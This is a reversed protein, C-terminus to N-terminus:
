QQLSGEMGLQWALFSYEDVLDDIVKSLPKGAGHGAKKEFRLLVPRGSTTAKQLRACMKRAHLPDVRTDRDATMLLVAPYAQGPAVRHYPSYAYLWKFDEANDACGYEPIWLRALQFRHYRVMDLLPVSCLVARFLEPRQTLVAGVLLGGNSGGSIALKDPSTIRQKILWEAAAIFDDFSNQKNALMGGKHWDEGYEGGGRIGPMAYVGGRELWAVLASGFFPTQPIAFGGYGYLLTPHRGDAALGRAHVLFMPVKTGDKSEFWVQRAEFRAADIDGTLKEFCTVKGSVGDYRYLAPPHFFSMFDFVLDAGAPDAHIDSVTGLDPLEIVPGGSGDLGVTRLRSTADRLELLAIRDGFVECDRITADGQPVLETWNEIKPTAPDAAMIRFRPAEHNTFVVLKGGVVRASFQAEVKEVVPIWRSGEQLDKLYVESKSWGQFVNIVLYRGDPSLAPDPWDEKARGEGFVLRDESPDTGVKHFWVRRNYKEDGKPVTGPEPYSTYYFGSGDPLWAIGCARTHPIAESLDQGSEVNRIRLTSLESGGESTGYAVLSGDRSPHWWDLATTGDASMTNPDIVRRTPGTFGDRVHLGPQAELGVRKLFFVRRGFVRPSRVRGISALQELRARLPARAKLPDLLKRTHANQADAWAQVEASEGDELWRFPDSVPVGHITEVITEVKAPPTKVAATGCGALALLLIVFRRM